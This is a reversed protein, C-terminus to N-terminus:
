VRLKHGRIQHAYKPGFSTVWSWSSQGPRIAPSTTSWLAQASMAIVGLTFAVSAIVIIRRLQGRMPAFAKKGVIEGRETARGPKGPPDIM